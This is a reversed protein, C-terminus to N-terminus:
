GFHIINGRLHFIHWRSPAIGSWRTARTATESRLRDAVYLPLPSEAALVGSLLAQLAGQDMEM